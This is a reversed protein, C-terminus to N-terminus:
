WGVGPLSCNGGNQLWRAGFRTLELINIPASVEGPHAGIELRILRDISAASGVRRPQGSRCRVTQHAGLIRLLLNRHKPQLRRSLHDYDRHLPQGRKHTAARCYGADAARQRVSGRGTTHSGIPRSNTNTLISLRGYRQNPSRGTTKGGQAPSRPCYELCSKAFTGDGAFGERIADTVHNIRGYHAFGSVTAYVDGVEFLKCETAPKHTRYSAGSDAALVIRYRSRLIIESTATSRALPIICMLALITQRIITFIPPSRHM